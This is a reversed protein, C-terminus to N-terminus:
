APWGQGRESDFDFVWGLWPDERRHGLVRVLRAAILSSLVSMTPEVLRGEVLEDNKADPLDSLEEPTRRIEPGVAIRKM